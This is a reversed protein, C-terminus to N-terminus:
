KVSMAQIGVIERLAKIEEIVRHVLTDLAGWQDLPDLLDRYDRPDLLDLQVSQEMTVEHVRTERLVVTEKIERHVM